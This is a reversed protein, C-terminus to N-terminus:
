YYGYRQQCQINIFYSFLINNDIINVKKADNKENKYRVYKNLIIIRGCSNKIGNFIIIVIMM